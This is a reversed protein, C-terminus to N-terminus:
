TFALSAAGVGAGWAWPSRARLVYALVLATVGLILGTISAQAFPLTAGVQVTHLHQQGAPSERPLPVFYTNGLFM